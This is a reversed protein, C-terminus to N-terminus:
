NEKVHLSISCSCSCPSAPRKCKASPKLKLTPDWETVRPGGAFLTEPPQSFPQLRGVQAGGHVMHLHASEDTLLLQVVCAPDAAPPGSLSQSPSVRSHAIWSQDLTKAPLCFGTHQGVLRRIQGIPAAASKGPNVVSHIRGRFGGGGPPPKDAAALM